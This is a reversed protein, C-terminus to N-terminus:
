EARSGKEYVSVFLGFGLTRKADRLGRQARIGSLDIGKYFMYYKFTSVGCERVLWEAEELQQRNMLAIHYGYDIHFSQKSLAMLEPFIERYPGVKNLYSKGTRFYSLLSTVGGSAASASETHADESFPRYIGVHFHSDIAGPFVVKGTADINQEADSEPIQNAIAAIKGDLVAVDARVPDVNPLVLTGGRVILDFRPM